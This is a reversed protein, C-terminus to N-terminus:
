YHTDTATGVFPDLEDKVRCSKFPANTAGLVNVSQDIANTWRASENLNWGPVPDNASLPPAFV